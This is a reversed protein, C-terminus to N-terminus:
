RSGGVQNYAILRVHAWPKTSEVNPLPEINVTLLAIALGNMTGLAQSSRDDWFRPECSCLRGNECPNSVLCPLRFYRDSVPCCSNQLKTSPLMANRSNAKAVSPRSPVSHRCISVISTTSISNLQAQNGLFRMTCYGQTTSQQPFGIYGSHRLSPGAYGSRSASCYRLFIDLLVHTTLRCLLNWTHFM